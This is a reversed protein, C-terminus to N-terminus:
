VFLATTVDTLTPRQVPFIRIRDTPHFPLNMTLDIRGEWVPGINRPISPSFSHEQFIRKKVTQTSHWVVLSVNHCVWLLCDCSLPLHSLGGWRKALCPQWKRPVLAQLRVSGVWLQLRSAGSGVM